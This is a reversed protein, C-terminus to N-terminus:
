FSLLLMSAPCHASPHIDSSQTVQSGHFVLAMSTYMVRISLPDGESMASDAEAEKCDNPGNCKLVQQGPTGSSDRDELQERYPSSWDKVPQDGSLDKM